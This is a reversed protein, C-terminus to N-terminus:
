FLSNKGDSEAERKRDIKKLEKGKNFSYSFKLTVLPQIDVQVDQEQYYGVSETVSNDVSFRKMFPNIISLSIKGQNNKFM